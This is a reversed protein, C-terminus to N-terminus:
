EDFDDKDVIQARLTRDEWYKEIKRRTDGGLRTPIKRPREAPVVVPEVPDDAEEPWIEADDTLKPEEAAHERNTM